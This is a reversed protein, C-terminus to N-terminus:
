QCQDRALPFTGTLIYPSRFITTFITFEYLDATRCLFFTCIIAAHVQSLGAVFRSLDSIIMSKLCPGFGLWDGQPSVKLYNIWPRDFM